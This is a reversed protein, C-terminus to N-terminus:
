TYIVGIGRDGPKEIFEECKFHLTKIDQWVPKVFCGSDGNNFDIDHMAIVGGAKVLPLYNIFDMRAGDESHDGDIFLFDIPEIFRAAARITDQQRSPGEFALLEVGCEKAWSPWQEARLRMQERHRPDSRPVIVDISMIKGGKPMNKMWHWLTGGLLSGIELVHRPKLTKVVELLQEFEGSNQYVEVPCGNIKENFIM